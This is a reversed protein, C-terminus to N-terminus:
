CNNGCACQNEGVLRTNLGEERAFRSVLQALRPNQIVVRGRQDVVVDELRVTASGEEPSLNAADSKSM